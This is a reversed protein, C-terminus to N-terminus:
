KGLPHPEDSYLGAMLYIQAYRSLVYVSSFQKLYGAVETTVSVLDSYREFIVLIPRFMGRM